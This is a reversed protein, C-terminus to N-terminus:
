KMQPFASAKTTVSFIILAVSVKALLQRVSSGCLATSRADNIILKQSM